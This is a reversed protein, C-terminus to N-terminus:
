DECESVVTGGRVAMTVVLVVALAHVASCRVARMVDDLGGAVDCLRGWGWREHEGKCAGLFMGVGGSLKEATERKDIGCRVYVRLGRIRMMMGQRSGVMRAGFSRAAAHSEAQSNDLCSLFPSNYPLRSLKRRATPADFVGAQRTTATCTSSVVESRPSHVFFFHSM